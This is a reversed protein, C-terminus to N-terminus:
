DETNGDTNQRQHKVPLLLLLIGFFSTAAATGTATTFILDWLFCKIVMALKVNHINTLIATYVLRFLLLIKLVNWLKKTQCAYTYKQHQWLNQCVITEVVWIQLKDTKVIHLYDCAHVRAIRQIPM